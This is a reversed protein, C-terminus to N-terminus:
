LNQIFLGIKEVPLFQELIKIMDKLRMDPIKLGQLIPIKNAILNSINEGDLLGNEKFYPKISNEFYNIAMNVCSDFDINLM